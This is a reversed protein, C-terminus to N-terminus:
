GRGSWLCCMSNIAWRPAVNRAIHRARDWEEAMMFMDLAEKIMEVSILLEGARRYESMNALRDSVLAAVDVCRDPVFKQALDM